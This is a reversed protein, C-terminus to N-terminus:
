PSDTEEDGPGSALALRKQAVDFAVVRQSPELGLSDIVAIIVEAVITSELEMRASLQIQTPAKLGLVECRSMILRHATDAAKTDGALAKPWMAAMLRDLRDVELWRAEEVSTTLEVRSQAKARRWDTIAHQASSYNLREAITAWDLGAMRLQALQTRRARIRHQEGESAPM